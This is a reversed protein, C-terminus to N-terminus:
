ALVHSAPVRRVGGDLGLDSTVKECAGVSDLLSFSGM